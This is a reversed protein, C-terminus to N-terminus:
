QRLAVTNGSMHIIQGATPEDMTLRGIAVAQLRDPRLIRALRMSKLRYEDQLNKYQRTQKLVVYGMRRVEMQFFVTTFLAIIIIIVSVLPKMENIQQRSMHEGKSYEFNRAELARTIKLKM